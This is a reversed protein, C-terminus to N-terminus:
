PGKETFVSLGAIRIVALTFDVCAGEAVEGLRLVDPAAL